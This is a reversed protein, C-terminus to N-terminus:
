EEVIMAWEGRIEVKGIVAAQKVGAAQLSSLLKASEAEPVAILLGGSTQADALLYRQATTVDESFRTVTSVHNLNDKTGGPIIGAQALQLAGTLFPVSCANIVFSMNAGDAMERLHGLLGFGTIDTCANVTFRIMTEAAVKNLCAMTDSAERASDAGAVGQKIATSIIGTGLPKTLILLDGQKAGKNTLIKDPHVVGTVALGFKPETDDVTHGGVIPIGAEAAKDSAGHLIAELVS